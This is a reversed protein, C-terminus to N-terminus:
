EGTDLCTNYRALVKTTRPLLSDLFTAGKALAREIDCYSVPVVLDPVNEPASFGAAM